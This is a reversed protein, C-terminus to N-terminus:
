DAVVHENGYILIDPIPIVCTDLINNSISSFQVMHSNRYQAYLDFLRQTSGLQDNSLSEFWLGDDDEFIQDLNSSELWWWSHSNFAFFPSHLLGSMISLRLVM